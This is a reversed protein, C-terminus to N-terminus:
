SPDGRVFIGDMQLLQGTEEDVFVNELSALTFELSDLYDLMERFLPQADYLPVFTLEIEVVRIQPLTEAAGRLVEREFGQVDAKLLIRDERAILESRLSDLRAVDVRETRIHALSPAITVARQNLPLFSSSLSEGGVRFDAAGDTNGLALRRCKWLPDRAARRSLEAFIDRQPEFSIIRGSYGSHRVQEAYQGINAGVDLVLNIQHGKIICLRRQDVSNYVDYPVAMYGFKKLVDNIARKARKWAPIPISRSM